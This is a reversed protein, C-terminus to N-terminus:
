VVRRETVYWIYGSVEFNGMEKLIRIYDEMQKIYSNSEKGFKYDVIVVKDGKIVLRDPRYNLKGDSSPNLVATENLVYNEKDFWEAIQPNEEIQSLIEDIFECKEESTLVGMREYKKAIREVDEKVIVESMMKHKIKGISLNSRNDFYAEGKLKLRLKSEIPGVDYQSIEEVRNENVEEDENQPIYMKGYEYVDNEFRADNQSEAMADITAHLLTNFSSISKSRQKKAYVILNDEARTFAVYGINLNDIASLSKEELYDNLYPSELMKKSVSLPFMWSRNNEEEYERWLITEGQEIKWDCFPIFITPYELGKSKHITIIRVANKTEPTSICFEDSHLDWWDLFELLANGKQGSYSLIVDQFAQIYPLQEEDDKIKLLNIIGECIEFLSKTSLREIVEDYELSNEELLSIAREILDPSATSISTAYEYNMMLRNIPEKSSNIYRMIAVISKVSSSNKIMLAENSIVYFKEDEDKQESMLFQATRIADGNTRTLIAIKDASYGSKLMTQIDAYLKALVEKKYDSVPTVFEVKVYGTDPEKNANIKQSCDQYATRIKDELPFEKDGMDEIYSSYESRKSELLIEVAQSFFRNNFNIINPASRWNVEMSEKEAGNQMFSEESEPLGNLMTWDSNRWRYISQKVDGVILNHGGKSISEKLLPLFNEWQAHSTDQFEDIMYHHINVGVKEYIFPTDTGKIVKNLLDTTDSLLMINREKIIDRMHIDVDSLIGFSYLNHRLIEYLCYQPYDNQYFDRLEDLYGSSDFKDLADKTNQHVVNKKHEWKTRDSVLLSKPPLTVREAPSIFYKLVTKGMGALEDTILDKLIEHGGSVINKWKEQLEHSKSTIFKNFESIDDKSPSNDPSLNDRWHKYEEKFLEKSLVRIKREASNWEGKEEIQSIDFDLLWKKLTDDETDDSLSLYMRDIAENAINESDLEVNYGGQMGIDRVFARMTKQFFTDITSVNFNTYDHLLTYLIEMSRKQLEEKDKVCGSGILEERYIRSNKDNSGTALNYLSKIIRAKMEGTAKNTFTVALIHRYTKNRESDFTDFQSKSFLLWLYYLTLTFTKGSGASAKYVVLPPETKLRPKDNGMVM